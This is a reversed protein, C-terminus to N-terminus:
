DKRFHFHRAIHTDRRLLITSSNPPVTTTWMGSRSILRVGSALSYRVRGGHRRIPLRATQSKGQLRRGKEQLSM